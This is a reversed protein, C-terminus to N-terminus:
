PASGRAPSTAAPCHEEELLAQALEVVQDLPHVAVVPRVGVLGDERELLHAAEGAGSPDVARMQCSREFAPIGFARTGLPVCMSTEFVFCTMYSTTFPFTARTTWTDVPAVPFM